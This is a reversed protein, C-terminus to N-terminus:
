PETHQATTVELRLCLVDQLFGKPLLQVVALHQPAAPSGPAQQVSGEWVGPAEEGRLCTRYYSTPQNTAPQNGAAQQPVFHQQM